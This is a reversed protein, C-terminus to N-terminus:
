KSRIRRAGRPAKGYLTVADTTSPSILFVERFSEHIGNQKIKTVVQSWEDDLLLGDSICTVILVTSSPYRKQSKMSIASNISEVLDTVSEDNTFVYPESLVQKTKPDRKTGKAAYSHGEKTLHERVLYDNTPVAM